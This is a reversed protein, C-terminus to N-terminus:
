KKLIFLELALNKDIQGTKINIDMDALDSIYQLLLESSYKRSNQIALKVRYPHIKLTSAIDKESLGKKLLEKCQYMIRFQNALMIIIKIPEENIKIMEYYAELAENKNNKVINDLLKFIDTDVKTTVNIIDEETIINNDKYLKLKQLESQLIRPNEGVRNLLLNIINNNIQYNKLEDKILQHSNENDNFSKVIGNKKILKTIRKREDIKENNVVFILTTDPNPSNLYTEITESDKSTSGTFMNANECIVLKKTSFLSLTICDNIINEIIDNDLDFKNINIDDFEQAIKKIESKILYEKTGYLLYLM